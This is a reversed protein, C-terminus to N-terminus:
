AVRSTRPSLPGYQHPQVYDTEGTSRPKGSECHLRAPAARRREDSGAGGPSGCQLGDPAVRVWRQGGPLPSDEVLTFGALAETVAEGKAGGLSAVSYRVRRM